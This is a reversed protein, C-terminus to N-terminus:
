SGHRRSSLEATAGRLIASHSHPYAIDRPFARPQADSLPEPWLHMERGTAPEPSARDGRIAVPIEEPFPTAFACYRLRHVRVTHSPEQHAAWDGSSEPNEMGAIHSATNPGVMKKDPGARGVHAIAGVLAPQIRLDSIATL